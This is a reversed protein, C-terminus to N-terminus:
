TLKAPSLWTIEGQHKKPCRVTWVKSEGHTQMDLLSELLSNLHILSVCEEHLRRRRLIHILDYSSTIEATLYCPTCLYPHRILFWRSHKGKVVRPVLSCTLSSCHLKVDCTVYATTRIIIPQYLILLVTQIRQSENSSWSWKRVVLLDCHLAKIKCLERKPTLQIWPFCSDFAQFNQSFM